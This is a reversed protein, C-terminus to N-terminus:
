TKCLRKHNESLATELVMIGFNSLLPQLVVVAIGHDHLNM